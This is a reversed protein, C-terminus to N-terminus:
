ALFWCWGMFCFCPLAHRQVPDGHRLHALPHTGKEVGQVQARLQLPQRGGGGEVERGLLCTAVAIPTTIHIHM